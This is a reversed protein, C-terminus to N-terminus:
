IEPFEFVLRIIDNITFFFILYHRIVLSENGAFRTHARRVHTSVYHFSSLHARAYINKVAILFMVGYAMM